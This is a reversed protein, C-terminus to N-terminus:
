RRREREAATTQWLKANLDARKRRIEACEASTLFRRKGDPSGTAGWGFVRAAPPKPSQKGMFRLYCSLRCQRM